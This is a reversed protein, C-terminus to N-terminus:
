HQLFPDIGCWQKVADELVAPDPHMGPIKSLFKAVVWVSPGCERTWNLKTKTGDICLRGDDARTLSLGIADERKVNSESLVVTIMMELCKEYQVKSPRGSKGWPKGANSWDIEQAYVM